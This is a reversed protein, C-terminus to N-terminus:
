DLSNISEYTQSSADSDSFDDSDFEDSDDSEDDVEILHLSCKSCNCFWLSSSLRSLVNRGKLNVLLEHLDDQINEPTSNQGRVQIELPGSTKTSKLFTKLGDEDFHGNVRKLSELSSIWEIFQTYLPSDFDSCKFQVDRLGKLTMIQELLAAKLRDVSGLTVKTLRDMSEEFFFCFLSRGFTQYVIKDSHNAFTFGLADIELSQFLNCPYFQTKLGDMAYSFHRIFPLKEQRIVVPGVGDIVLISSSILMLTRLNSMSEVMQLMAMVHFAMPPGEEQWQIRLSRLKHSRGISELLILPLPDKGLYIALEKLNPFNLDFNTLGQAKLLVLLNPNEVSLEFPVDMSLNLRRLNLPVVFQASTEEEEEDQQIDLHLDTLHELSHFRNMLRYLFDLSMNGKYTFSKLQPSSFLLEEYSSLDLDKDVWADITLYKLNPLPFRFYNEPPLYRISLDVLNSAFDQSIPHFSQCLYSDVRLCRAGSKVMQQYKSESQEDQQSNHVKLVPRGEDVLHENLFRSSYTFEDYAQLKPFPVFLSTPDFNLPLDFSWCNFYVLNQSIELLDEYLIHREGADFVALNPCLKGLFTFLSHPLHQPGQDRKLPLELFQKCYFVEQIYSPDVERDFTLDVVQLHTISKLYVNISKEISRSVLRLAALDNLCLFSAIKGHVESPLSEMNCRHSCIFLQDILWCFLGPRCQLYCHVKDKAVNTALLVELPSVGVSLYPSM